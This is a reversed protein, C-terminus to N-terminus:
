TVHECISKHTGALLDVVDVILIAQKTEDCVLVVAQRVGFCTDPKTTDAVYNDTRQVRVGHQTLVNKIDVRTM